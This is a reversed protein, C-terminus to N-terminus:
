YLQLALQILLNQHWVRQPPLLAPICRHRRCTAQLWTSPLPARVDELVKLDDKRAKLAAISALVKDDLGTIDAQLHTGQRLLFALSLSHTPLSSCRGTCARCGVYAATTTYCALRYGYRQNSHLYRAQFHYLLECVKLDLGDETSTAVTAFGGSHM